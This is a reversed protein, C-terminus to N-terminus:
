NSCIIEIFKPNQFYNKPITINEICKENSDLAQIKLEINQNQYEIELLKIITNDEYPSIEKENAFIRSNSLQVNVILRIKVYKKPQEPETIPPPPMEKTKTNSSANTDNQTKIQNKESGIMKDVLQQKSKEPLVNYISLIGISLAIVILIFKGFYSNEFISIIFQSFGKPTPNNEM